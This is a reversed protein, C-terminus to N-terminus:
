YPINDVDDLNETIVETYDNGIEEEVVEEENDSEFINFIPIPKMKRAAMEIRKVVAVEGPKSIFSTVSSVGTTGIRGTRGCRHIYSATDLPFDYNLIYNVMLTDLGRSGGNTTSLVVTKGNLFEGYKGRRESLHMDGHLNTVKIGCDYLFSSVWHSTSNQNSFIIVRQKSFAKPKVYKLLEEPKQSPILRVFKQPVLIKHLKETTVYEISDSVNLVDILVNKLRSPITASTLVIQATSPYEDRKEEVKRVFIRRMFIKLKTEFTEHFLADAEDLVVFRIFRLDYIGFTTLKSIVGFSCVIVDVSDVPPNLIIRKTKGGTIIKTKIGLHKSLKILELAIQVALERSPTVILGLPSNINRQTNQKWTLIKTVLPLLYAMTKGCGTEAALLVNRGEFIKPIGLKQIELPKYIDMNELQNCVSIDVDLDKFTRQDTE